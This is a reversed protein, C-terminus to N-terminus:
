ERQSNGDVPLHIMLMMMSGAVCSGHAFVDCALCSLQCSALTDCSCDLAVRGLRCPPRCQRHDLLCYSARQLARPKLSTHRACQRLFAIAVMGSRGPYWVEQMSFEVGCYHRGTGEGTTGDVKEKGRRVPCPEFVALRDHVSSAQFVHQVESSVAVDRFFKDYYYTLNPEPGGRIHPIGQAGVTDLLGMFIVPPLSGRPWSYQKRCELCSVCLWVNCQM